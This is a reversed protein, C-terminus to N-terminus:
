RRGSRALLRARLADARRAWAPDGTLRGLARLAAYAVAQTDVDALPPAPNTGDARVYGGGDADAAADITDRWGQQM